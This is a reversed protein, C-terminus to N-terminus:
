LDELDDAADQDRAGVPGGPSLREHGLDLHLHLLHLRGVYARPDLEPTVLWRPRDPHRESGRRGVRTSLTPSAFFSQEPLCWSVRGKSSPVAAARASARRSIM